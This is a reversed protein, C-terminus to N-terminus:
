STTLIQNTFQKLFVEGGIRLLHYDEDLSDWSATIKRQSALGLLDSALVLATKM